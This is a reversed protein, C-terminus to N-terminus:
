LSLIIQKPQKGKVHSPTDAAKCLSLYVKEYRHPRFIALTIEFSM